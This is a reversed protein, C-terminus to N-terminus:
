AKEEGNQSLRQFVTATELTGAVEYLLSIIDEVDRLDVEEAPSHAYRLPIGLHACITGREGKMQMFSADSLVGAAVEKQVAMGLKKATHEIFDRFKPNPLMGGVPGKGYHHMYLIVPGGGLSVEFMSDLDPTDCAISCDLSIVMDPKLREQMPLSGRVNFEEQVSFGLHVTIDPASQSLMKALRLVIYCAARNDLTKSVVRHRGLRRFNAQYTITSGTGIGLEEVERRSQAGIDVYLDYKDPVSHKEAEPTLHHSKTGVVGTVSRCRDLTNVQVLQSRLTKESPGGVREFMLYGQETVKRVMLGVEDMHGFILISTGPDKKGQFSATVNGSYDVEVQDTTQKLKEVLYAIVRDEDGSLGSLGCLEELWHETREM